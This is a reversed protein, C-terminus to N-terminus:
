EKEAKPQKKADRTRAADQRGSEPLRIVAAEEAMLREAEAASMCDITQTGDAHTRFVITEMFDEPLEVALAGNEAQIVQLPQSPTAFQQRLAQALARSEEATPTRLRGTKPDIAVQMGAVNVKLDTVQPTARRSTDSKGTDQDAIAAMTGAVLLIVAALAPLVIKWRKTGLHSRM